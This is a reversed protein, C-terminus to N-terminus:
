RSQRDAIYGAVAEIIIDEYEVSFLRKELTLSVEVASDYASKELSIDSIELAIGQEKIADKILGAAKKRIDERSLFRLAANETMEPAASVAAEAAKSAAISLFSGFAGTKETVTKDVASRFEPSAVLAKYDVGINKACLIVADLDQVACISDFSVCRGIGSKLLTEKLKDTIDLAYSNVAGCLIETRQKEDLASLIREVIGESAEPAECILRYILRTAFIQGEARGGLKEKIKPVLGRYTSM